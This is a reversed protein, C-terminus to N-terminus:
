QQYWNEKNDKNQARSFVRSTFFQMDNETNVVWFSVIIDVGAEYAPHTIEWSVENDDSVVWTAPTNDPFVDYMEPDFIGPDNKFATLDAHIDYPATVNRVTATITSNTREDDPASEIGINLICPYDDQSTDISTYTVSEPETRLVMLGAYLVDATVDGTPFNILEVATTVINIEGEDIDVHITTDATSTGALLDEWVEPYNTSLTISASQIKTRSYSQSM